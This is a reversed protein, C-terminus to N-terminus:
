KALEEFAERYTHLIKEAALDIIEDDTLVPASPTDSLMDTNTEGAAEIEGKHSAVSSLERM